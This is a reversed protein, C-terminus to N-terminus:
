NAADPDGAPRQVVRFRLAFADAAPPPSRDSLYPATLWGSWDALLDPRGPLPLDFYQEPVARLVASVIRNNSTSDIAFRASLIRRDGEVRGETLDVNVMQSHRNAILAIYTPMWQDAAEVRLRAPVSVEVMLDLPRSAVTPEHEGTLWAFAGLVAIIGGATLASWGLGKFFGPWGPGGLVRSAVIGIALGAVLALLTNLVVFYGAEGEFSSVRQWGVAAVAVLCGFAAAFAATLVGTAISALWSM